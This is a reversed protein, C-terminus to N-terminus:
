AQVGCKRLIDPTLDGFAIVPLPQEPHASLLKEMWIMNYWRGFKFGCKQFTGVPRYGMRTHFNVSDHTLYEDEVDTSAICANLNTINQARSVAELATYLRRGLGCRRHQPHLYITTEASWQYAKRGVFPHTYAYGLLRDGAQAVLYPYMKLTHEVRAAFEAPTPVDYEFSVATQEVYPAYIELLQAADAATAARVTVASENM